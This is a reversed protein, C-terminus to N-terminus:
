VGWVNPYAGLQMQVITNHKIQTEKLHPIAHHVIPQM